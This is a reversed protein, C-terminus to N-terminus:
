EVPLPVVEDDVVCSELAGVYEGGIAACQGNRGANPIDALAVVVMVLIFSALMGFFFGAILGDDDM